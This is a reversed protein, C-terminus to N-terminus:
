ETSKLPPPSNRDACALAEELSNFALDGSRVFNKQGLAEVLGARDLQAYLDDDIGCIILPIQREKVLWQHLNELGGITSADITLIRRLRLVVARPRHAAIRKMMPMLDDFGGFCLSGIVNVIPIRGRLSGAEEEEVERFRGDAERLLLTFRTESSERIFFALSAAVGAYIALDVRLTLTCLFTLVMIFASQPGARWALRISRRNIMSFALVMLLGSLAALPIAEAMPGFLLLAIALVVGSMVGAWRTRAGSRWNVASRAFSGSSVHNQFFSGVINALGQAVFERNSDIRQGTHIAISKGIATAEMSGIVAVALAGSLLTAGGQWDVSPVQFDWIARGIDGLDGLTRVGADPLGLVAAVVGAGVMLLLASPLAPFQRALFVQGAAVSAAIALTPWHIAALQSLTGLVPGFFPGGPTGSAVSEIGFFARLQGAAILCGAGAMFGIIVSNSIFHMLNGVRLFGFLLKMAGILATYFFAAELESLPGQYAVLTAAFILSTANTPGTIMHRSCGLLSAVITSIVSTYLGYVPPLGAIIAYAMSQPIAVAAM